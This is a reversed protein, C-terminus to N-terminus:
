SGGSTASVPRERRLRARGRPDRRNSYGSSGHLTTFGRSEMFAVPVDQAASETAMDLGLTMRPHGYAALAVGGIVASRFGHSALFEHADSRGSM